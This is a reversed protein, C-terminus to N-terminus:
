SCMAIGHNPMAVLSVYVLWMREGCCSSVEDYMDNCIRMSKTHTQQKGSALHKDGCPSQLDQLAENALIGALVVVNSM